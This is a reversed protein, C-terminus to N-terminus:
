LKKVLVVLLLKVTSPKVLKSVNKKQTLNQKKAFGGRAYCRAQLPGFIWTFYFSVERLAHQRDLNEVSGTDAAPTKLQLYAQMADDNLTTKDLKRLEELQKEDESNAGRLYDLSRLFLSKRKEANPAPSSSASAPSSVSASQDKSNPSSVPTVSNESSPESLLSDSSAPSTVPEAISSSDGHEIKAKNRIKITKLKDAM